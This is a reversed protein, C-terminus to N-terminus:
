AFLDGLLFLAGFKLGGGRGPGFSRGRTLSISSAKLIRADVQLRPRRTVSDRGGMGEETLMKGFAAGTATDPECGRTMVVVQEEDDLRTLIDEEMTGRFFGTTVAEM